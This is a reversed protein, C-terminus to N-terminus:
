YQWYYLSQWIVRVIFCMKTWEFFFQTFFTVMCINHLYLIFWRYLLICAQYVFASFWVYMQHNSYIGFFVKVKPVMRVRAFYEWLHWIELTSWLWHTSIEDCIFSICLTHMIYVVTCLCLKDVSICNVNLNTGITM